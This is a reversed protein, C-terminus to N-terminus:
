RRGLITAAKKGQGKECRVELLRDEFAALRAIESEFMKEGLREGGVPVRLPFQEIVDSILGKGM